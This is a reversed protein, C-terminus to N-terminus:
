VSKDIERKEKKIKSGKVCMRREILPTNNCMAEGERLALKYQMLLTQTVCKHTNVMPIVPGNM